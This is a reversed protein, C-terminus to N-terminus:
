GNNDGEIQKLWEEKPLYYDTSPLGLMLAKDSLRYLKKSLAPCRKRAPWCLFLKCGLCKVTCGNEWYNNSSLGCLPSCEYCCLTKCPDTKGACIVKDGRKHINCPNHKKILRDAIDYIRDYLASLKEIDLKEVNLEATIM